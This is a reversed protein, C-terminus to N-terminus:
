LDIHLDERSRAPLVPINREYTQEKSPKDRNYQEMDKQYHQVQRQQFAHRANLWLSKENSTDAVEAASVRDAEQSAAWKLAEKDDTYILCREVGRSVSVYFQKENSAAFSTSSQAILVDHADKGQSAHSTRYYGLTFNRYDKQLVKGDNLEIHGGETFGKITYNEGNNLPRGNESKGNSTVRLIDGQAVSIQEKRCVQYKKGQDFPLPALEEQGPVRLLVKGDESISAVDYTKGAKFEEQSKHFQVSMGPRYNLHDQKEAETYSIKRLINFAPEEQGVLGEEKLKSRIATTIAQGEAHTPSVVIATRPTSKGGRKRVPPAQISQLYDRAIREHREGQNEIEIISNM